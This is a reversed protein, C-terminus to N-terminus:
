LLENKREKKCTKFNRFEFDSTKLDFEGRNYYIIFSKELSKEFINLFKSNQQLNCMNNGIFLCIHRTILLNERM